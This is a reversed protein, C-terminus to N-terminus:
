TKARQKEMTVCNGRANYEVLSMFNRMLMIGRGHPLELQEPDTPDPVQNPDFGEGEDTIEVRLRDASMRCKVHVKKSLDMRNGHKVANVLAEEMALQVSFIEHQDWHQEELHRVVEEVLSQGAGTKSPIQCDCRWIWREDSECM